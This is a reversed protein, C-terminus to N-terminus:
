VYCLSLREVFEGFPGLDLQTPVVLNSSAVKQGGTKGSQFLLFTVGISSRFEMTLSNIINVANVTQIPLQQRIASM